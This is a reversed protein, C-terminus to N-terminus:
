SRPTMPASPYRPQGYRNVLWSGWAVLLAGLGACFWAVPGRQRRACEQVLRFAEAEELLRARYSRSWEDVILNHQEPIM